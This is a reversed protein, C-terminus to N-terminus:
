GLVGPGKYHSGLGEGEFGSGKGLVGLVRKPAKPNYGYVGFGLGGM